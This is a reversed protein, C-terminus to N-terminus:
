GLIETSLSGSAEDWECAMVIRDNGSVALVKFASVDGEIAVDREVMVDLATVGGAGHADLYESLLSPLSAACREGLLASLAAADSAPVCNGADFTAERASLSGVEDLGEDPMDQGQANVGDVLQRLPGVAWKDDPYLRAEYFGGSALDEVYTVTAQGVTAPGGVVRLHAGEGFYGALAAELGDRQMPDLWGTEIGGVSATDSEAEGGSAVERSETAQIQEPSAAEQGQNAACAAFTALVALLALATAAKAPLGVANLNRSEM